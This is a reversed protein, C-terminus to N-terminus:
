NWCPPQNETSTMGPFSATILKFVMYSSAVLSLVYSVSAAVAVEEGGVGADVAARVLVFWAVFVHLPQANLELDQALASQEVFEDTSCQAILEGKGVM